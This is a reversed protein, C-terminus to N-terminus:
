QIHRVARRMDKNYLIELKHTFDKSFDHNYVKLIMCVEEKFLQSVYKCFIPQFSSLNVQENCVIMIENESRKEASIILRPWREKILIPISEYYNKEIFYGIGNILEKPVVEGSLQKWRGHIRSIRTILTEGNHIIWFDQSDDRSLCIMNAKGYINKFHYNLETM